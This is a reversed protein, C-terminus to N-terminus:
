LDYVSCSVQQVLQVLVAAVTVVPTTDPQGVSRCENARRKNPSLHLGIAYCLLVLM